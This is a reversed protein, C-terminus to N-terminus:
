VSRSSTPRRAVIVIERQEDQTWPSGDFNGLVAELELGALPLLDVLEDRTFIKMFFTGEDVPEGDLFWRFRCDILRRESDYTAQSRRERIQDGVQLVYDVHEEAFRSASEANYDFVDFAVTGGPSTLRAMETLAALQEERTALHQFARFASYVLDFSRQLPVAGFCGEVLTVRDRLAPAEQELKAAFRSLMAATPDVGVLCCGAGAVPLAVRGTGCAIELVPGDARLALDTYFDVDKSDPRLIEYDEDYHEALSNPYSTDPASSTM